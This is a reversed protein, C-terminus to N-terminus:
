GRLDGARLPEGEVTRLRDDSAITRALLRVEVHEVGDRELLVGIIRPSAPADAVVVRTTAPDRCVRTVACTVARLTSIESVEAALTAELREAHLTCIYTCM